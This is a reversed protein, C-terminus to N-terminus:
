EGLKFLANAGGRLHFVMDEAPGRSGKTRRTRPDWGKFAAPTPGPVPIGAEDALQRVDGALAALVDLSSQSVVGADLLARGGPDDGPGLWIAVAALAQGTAARLREADDGGLRGVTRFWGRGHHAHHREEDLMKGISMRLPKFTSGELAALVRTAALDVVANMAVFGPWGAIPADLFVINAFAEPARQEVLAEPDEGWHRKLLAHLLRVHGLESQSLSCSAVAAELAPTGFTWEGYHYGLLLKTDALAWLLCHLGKAAVVPMGELSEFERVAANSM